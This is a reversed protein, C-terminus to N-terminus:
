VKKVRALGSDTYYLLKRGRDGGVDKGIIGIGEGALMDEALMINRGGINLFGNANNLSAGGFLKAVLHQPHSGLKQMKRVLEKIAINGYRPSPLGEGNWFPLLYHNIGGIKLVPDWLCVAICSGLVTTVRHSDKHAFLNGPYLYIEGAEM